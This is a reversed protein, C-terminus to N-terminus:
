AAAQTIKTPIEDTIAPQDPLSAVDVAVGATAARPIHAAARKTTSTATNVAPAAAPIPATPAAHAALDAANPSTMMTLV